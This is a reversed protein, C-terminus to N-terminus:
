LGGPAPGTRALLLHADNEERLRDLETQLLYLRDDHRQQIEAATARESKIQAELDRNRARLQRFEHQLEETTAPIEEEEERHHDEETSDDTPPPKEQRKADLQAELEAIKQMAEKYRAQLLNILQGQREEDEM